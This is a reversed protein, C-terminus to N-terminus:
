AQSSVSGRPHPSRQEEARTTPALSAEGEHLMAGLFSGVDNLIEYPPRSRKLRASVENVHPTDGEQEGECEERRGRM